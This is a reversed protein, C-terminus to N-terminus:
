SPDQQAAKRLDRRRLPIYIACALLMSPLFVDIIFFQAFFSLALSIGWAILPLAPSPLPKDKGLQWEVAMITTLPVVVLLNINTFSPLYQPLNLIGLITSLAAMFWAANKHSINGGLRTQWVIGQIALSGNYINMNQTTYTCLIIWLINGAGIGLQYIGYTLTNAGTSQIVLVGCLCSLFASLSYLLACLVVSRRSKAFRCIDPFTAAAAIFFNGTFLTIAFSFALTQEPQYTLIASPDCVAFIQYINYGTLLLIFPLAIRAVLELSRWGVAAMLTGIAIVVLLAVPRPLSLSPFIALAVQALMDGNMAIWLIMAVMVIFSFVCATPRGLIRQVLTTCSRGFAFSWWGWLLCLFFLIVTGCLCALVAEQFTMGWGIAGGMNLGSSALASTMLIPLLRWTAKRKSHPVSSFAYEYTENLSFDIDQFGNM